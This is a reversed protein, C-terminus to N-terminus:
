QRPSLAPLRPQAGARIDRDDRRGVFCAVCRLAVDHAVLALAMVGDVVGSVSATSLTQQIRDLSTFRSAVDGAHRREFFSLPLRLLHRFLSTKWVLTLRSGAGMIAWSRVFDALTRFALLLGLAVAILTLLDRDEAVVVDDLVLQFGIPIAIVAAELVLSLLLVQTAVAAFGDASRLLDWIPIRARETKQEFGQTPWAELLVGTFRKNVEEPLVHRRGVAPDHIVM